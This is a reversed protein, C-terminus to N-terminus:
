NSDAEVDIDCKGWLGLKNERANKEAQDFLDQYSVNPPYSSSQAYGEKVLLENVLVDDLWVYRLLRGYHDVEQVDAELKIMKGEILDQNYDSAEQGFCEVEKQPHKTEPTNIGIYRVKRGDELVFTDGDVVREVKVLSSKDTENKGLVQLNTMTQWVKVFSFLLLVGFSLYTSVQRIKQARSM